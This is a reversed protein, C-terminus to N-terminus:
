GVLQHWGNDWYSAYGRHLIQFPKRVHRKFDYVKHTGKHYWAPTVFDSIPVLSGDLAIRTYNFADAEVPDAVEVLWMRTSLTLRDVYPDALMEFLEHTLCGQWTEGYGVTDTAFVKSFPIDGKLGHYGLAGFVDSYDQVLVTWGKSPPTDTVILHADGWYPAFDESVAAQFAPLANTLDSKHVLVSQPVIYVNLSSHAIDTFIFPTLLVVTVILFLVGIRKVQGM